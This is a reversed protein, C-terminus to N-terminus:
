PIPLDKFEIPLEIKRTETPVTLILKVAEGTPDAGANRSFNFTYSAKGNGGGGGGGDTRLQRGQADVMKFMSQLLFYDRMPNERRNRGLAIMPEKWKLSVKIEYRNGDNQKELSDITMTTDLITTEAKEAKAVEVEWTQVKEIVEYLGKAKFRKLVQGQEPLYKLQVHNDWMWACGFSPRDLSEDLNRMQGSPILSNGKEDLAETVLLGRAGRIVTLRPDVLVRVSLSSSVERKGPGEFQISHNRTANTVSVYFGEGTWAPGVKRPNNQGITIQSAASSGHSEPSLGAQCMVDMMVAWFPQNKADITVPKPRAHRWFESHSVGYSVGAQETITDIAKKASVGNLKVTVLTPVSRDYRPLDNIIAELSTRVDPDKAEALAKELVPAVPLGMMALHQRATDRTAPDDAGLQGVLAAVAAPDIPQTTPKTTQAPATASLALVCLLAFRTM